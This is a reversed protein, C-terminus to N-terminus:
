LLIEASVVTGGGPRSDVRVVGSWPRLRERMGLIGLHLSGLMSDATSDYGQGDDVIWLAVRQQDRRLTVAVQTAHAHKRCNNLAEQAVRYLAIELDAELRGFLAQDATEVIIYAALDTRARLDNVLWELGAVLGLDDLVAPWLGTCIARLSFVIEESACQWRRVSPHLVSEGIERTLWIARQLSDDHLDLALRRREEEQVQMLKINLAALEREREALTAVQAELRRVLLANQLASAVLPALTDIFASDEPSLEIDHRKAGVILTGIVEMNAILPVRRMSDDSTPEPVAREVAASDAAPRLVDARDSCDGWAYFGAPMAPPHLVLAAWCLDLTRGLQALVYAVIADISSLRTIDASFRQLTAAYDYVDRFLIRELGRRLWHQAVPFTGAVITIQLATSGLTTALFDNRAGSQQRFANLGVTYGALLGVWVVLAVVSRRIIREIGLFQGHLVAIGLCLPLLVISLVAVEPPVLYGLGLMYPGLALLCFPALGGLTGLAILRLAWQVERQRRQARVLTSIALVAAGLLEVILVAILLLQLRDYATPNVTIAWGYLVLLVVTIGLCALTAGRRLHINPHCVPFVLFLLFTSAGFGVLGIYVVALAWHVGTPTAIAALFTMAATMTLSLVTGAVVLDAALVFVIGGVVVFCLAISPFSLQHQISHQGALSTASATVVTGAPSRVQVVPAASVAAANAPSTVAQGAIAIVSDGPRIGADWGM